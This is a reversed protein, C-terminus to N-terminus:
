EQASSDLFKPYSQGQLGSVGLDEMAAQHGDLSHHCAPAGTAMSTRPELSIRLLNIFTSSFAAREGQLLAGCTGEEPKALSVHVSSTPFQTKIDIQNMNWLKLM